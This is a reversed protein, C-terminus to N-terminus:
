VELGVARMLELANSQRVVGPRLRYDFHLVGEEMRDGFHANEAAPGLAEAIEALALDHTTCIGAAGRGVLGRLVGEAGQRRDHSNTGGLIEDLLFLLPPSGSARDVIARLRQIEAYFRSTGALLSDQVRISAGLQLPTIRLRAARATGGALALAANSGVARLLTSKGSMNSGSLLVLHPAAGERGAGGLELDNRVCREEPLLPHGLGEAQFHLGPGDEVEPWADAPHEWAHSALSSLAELEGLALLWARVEQGHRRRWAEVACAMQLPWAVAYGFVAFIENRMQLLREAHRALQAVSRSAPGGDRLTRQLARLRPSEFPEREALAMLEAVLALRAAPREVQGNVAAVRTRTARLALLGAMVGALFPLPGWWSLAWAVAGLVTAAGLLLVAPRLWGVPLLPAMEGWAAVPGAEVEAAEGGGALALAERLDLRPALERAAEQRSRVEGPAAPELLWGLLAAQGPRTRAACLHQFLSGDGVLDLDRACLHDAPALEAGTPGTGPWSGDLRALGRAYVEVARRAQATRRDVRSLAVAVAIFAAVPLLVTWGPLRRDAVFWLLAALALAVAGRLWVLRRERGQLAAVRATREQRRRQYEARPDHM